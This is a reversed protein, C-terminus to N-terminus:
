NNYLINYLKKRININNKFHEETKIMSDNHYDSM